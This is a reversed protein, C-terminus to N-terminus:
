GTTWSASASNSFSGIQIGYFQRQMFSQCIGDVMPILFGDGFRHTYSQGPAAITTQPQNHLITTVPKVRIPHRIWQTVSKQTLASPADEQHPLQHCGYIENVVLSGLHAQPKRLRVHRCLTDTAGLSSVPPLSQPLCSDPTLIWFPRRIPRWSSALRKLCVAESPFM